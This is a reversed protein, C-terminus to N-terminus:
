IFKNYNGRPCIDFTRRPYKFFIRSKRTDPGRLEGLMESFSRPAALRANLEANRRMLRAAHYRKVIMEADEMGGNYPLISSM